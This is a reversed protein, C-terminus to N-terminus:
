KKYVANFGAEFDDPNNQADNIMAGLLALATLWLAGGNIEKLEFLTLEKMITIKLTKLLSIVQQM